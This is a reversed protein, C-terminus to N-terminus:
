IAGPNRQCTKSNKHPNCGNKVSKNLRRVSPKCFNPKMLETRQSISARVGWAPVMRSTSRRRSNYLSISVKGIIGDAKINAIKQAKKIATKVGANVGFIFIEKAIKCKLKDLNHNKFFNQYYFEEVWQRLLIDSYLRIGAKQIDKDYLNFTNIIKTWGKFDPHAKQYIGMFTFSKETENIHLANKPSSFELKMLAKFSEKFCSNDIKTM